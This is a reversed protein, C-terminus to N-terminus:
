RHGLPSLLALRFEQPKIEEEEVITLELATSIRQYESQFLNEIKQRSALIRSTYDLTTKPTAGNRVRNVGANYMALGAVESGGTDLCWRFHGLGYYANIGPNFIDAETLKPFTASNLQFLGRDVTRDRNAKNVAQPNHRSEEWSLAFALSPSVKFLVANELIVAALEESGTLGGFFAVVDSRFVEDLYAETILDPGAPAALLSAIPLALSGSAQVEAEADAEVEIEMEAVPTVQGPSKGSIVLLAAAMIMFGGLLPLNRRIKRQIKRIM